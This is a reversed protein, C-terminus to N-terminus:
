GREIRLVSLPLIALRQITVRQWRLFFDYRQVDKSLLTKRLPKDFFLFKQRCFDGDVFPNGYKLTQACIGNSCPNLGDCADM